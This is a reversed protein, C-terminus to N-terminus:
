AGFDILRAGAFLWGKDLWRAVQISFYDPSYGM